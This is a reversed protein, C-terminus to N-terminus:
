AVQRAEAVLLPAACKDAFMQDLLGEAAEGCVPRSYYFGQGYACQLHKLHSMQEATEVGEAIVEIGLNRALMIISQIIESNEGQVGIRSVFSRDIKLTDIPFRHLYSLSSYGTGFDDISVQIGLAHLQTVLSVAQEANQMIVSETIELKLCHAPLGTEELVSTIIQPLDPQELQRASLNVSILLSRTQPWAQHWVQMQRCAERLVKQGILVILGTDEALPIFDGPPVMGRRPHQWRALAEFGIIQGNTLSVIPQYHLIFEDRQVARRLDNELYLLSVIRSHMEQDFIEYRSKGNTKARYMAIDADRILNEAREYDPSSFAIGISAGSYVEQGNINIPQTLDRLIREAVKEAQGFDRINDILLVFEDGGLRAVMDSPRLLDTLKRTIKLLLQDGALHGLSDNVVKFRDLDLFLVAFRYQDNHRTRALARSLRQMLLTRNPLGTLADHLADHQLKQEANKRETIDTLSGAIRTALGREDRVALGRSLVWRYEGTSHRVRHENQFHRTKGELHAALEAEVIGRDEPHIRDLWCTPCPDGEAGECGLIEQWRRSFYIEGTILDWDWLGDNAGQAALAYRTESRQLREHVEQMEKSSITLSRELLYREQDAEQYTRSVRELFQLWQEDSPAAEIELGLRKLQRKLLAHYM